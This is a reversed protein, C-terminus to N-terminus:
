WDEGEDDLQVDEHALWDGVFVSPRPGDYEIGLSHLGDMSSGDVYRYREGLEMTFPLQGEVGICEAEGEEEVAFVLDMRKLRKFTGFEPVDFDVAHELCLEHNDETLWAGTGDPLEVYWEDWFGSPFAYRVRGLVTFRSGKLSGSAGRYLRTFGEPLVSRLGAALVREEDWWVAQNCYECVLMALGPNHLVHPAGCNPCRIERSV